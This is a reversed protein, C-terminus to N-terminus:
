DRILEVQVQVSNIPLYVVHKIPKTINSSQTVRKEDNAPSDHRNAEHEPTIIKFGPKELLVVLYGQGLLVWMIIIEPGVDLSDFITYLESQTLLETETESAPFFLLHDM